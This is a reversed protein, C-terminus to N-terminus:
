DGDPGSDGQARQEREFRIIMWLIGAIVVLGVGCILIAAVIDEQKPHFGFTRWCRIPLAVTAGFAGFGIGNWSM